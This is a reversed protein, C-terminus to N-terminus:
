SCVMHMGTLDNCLCSITETCKLIKEKIQSKSLCHLCTDINVSMYRLTSSRNKLNLSRM